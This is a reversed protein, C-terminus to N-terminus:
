GAAVATAAGALHAGVFDAVERVAASAEPVLPALLQWGHVMDDYVTLRSAGGAAIIREHV